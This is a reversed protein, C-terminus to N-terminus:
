GDDDNHWVFAADLDANEADSDDDVETYADSDGDVVSDVENEADYDGDVETEADSVQVEVE